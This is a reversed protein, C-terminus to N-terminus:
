WSAYHPAGADIKRSISSVMSSRDKDVQDPNFRVALRLSLNTKVLRSKSSIGPSARKSVPLFPEPLDVKSRIIAPRLLGLEPDISHFESIM